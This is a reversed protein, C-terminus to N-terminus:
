RCLYRALGEEDNIESPIEMGLERLANALRYAFPADLHIEGLLEREKFVERPTGELVKKGENLVIVYDSNAAEEVDHTISLISLSPDKERLRHVLSLIERKGTPDLMSTAEDLILLRPGMALVGAIAVRQKQGGSLGEPSKKLYDIMGVERAFEDIIAQMEERKIGRNELGFAIDEEVTSGVFQNDPNQFVLGIDKRAKVISKKDLLTGFLSVKGEYSFGLLGSILKALTSKGSGNHGILSVYSGEEISFSLDSVAKPEDQSYSFGLHEVELAKM